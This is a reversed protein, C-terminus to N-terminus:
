GPRSCESSVPQHEKLCELRLTLKTQNRATELSLLKVNLNTVNSSPLGAWFALEDNLTESSKVKNRAVLIEPPPIRAYFAALAVKDRNAVAAKWEELPAFSDSGQLGNADVVFSAVLLTLLAASRFRMRVTRCSHQGFHSM